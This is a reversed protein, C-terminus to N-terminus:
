VITKITIVNNIIAAKYILNQYYLEIIYNKLFLSGEFATKKKCQVLLKSLFFM